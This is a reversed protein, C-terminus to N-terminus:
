NSFSSLWIRWNIGSAVGNVLMVVGALLIFATGLRHLRGRRRIRQGYRLVIWILAAGLAAIGWAWSVIIM